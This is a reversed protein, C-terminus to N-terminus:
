AEVNEEEQQEELHRRIIDAIEPSADYTDGFIEHWTDAFHFAMPVILTEGGQAARLNELANFYIFLSHSPATNLRGRLDLASQMSLQMLVLMLESPKILVFHWDTPSGALLFLDYEQLKTSTM